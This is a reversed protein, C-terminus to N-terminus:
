LAMYPIAPLEILSHGSFIKEVPTNTMNCVDVIKLQCSMDQRLDSVTSRPKAFNFYGLYFAHEIWICSFQKWNFLPVPHLEPPAAEIVTPLFKIQECSECRLIGGKLWWLCIESRSVDFGVSTRKDM